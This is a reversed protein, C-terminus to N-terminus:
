EAGNDKISRRFDEFSTHRLEPLHSMLKTNQGLQTLKIFPLSLGFHPDEFSNLLTPNSKDSEGKAEFIENIPKREKLHTKQSVLYTLYDSSITQDNYFLQQDSFLYQLTNLQHIDDESSIEVCLKDPDGLEYIYPDFFCYTLRPAIPLFIQLGRVALGTAGLYTGQLEMWTNYLAVPNDSTIFPLESLNVLSKMALHGLLHIHELAHYLTLLSPNQHSLRADEPIRDEEKLYPRLSKFASNIAHLAAAGAKPTRSHQVLLFEKLLNFDEKNTPPLIKTIPNSILRAIKGEFVSLTKEVQGDEGYIYNAYAQSKIPVRVLHKGTKHKYSSIGIQNEDSSFNRLYFQPVFHQKKTKSM